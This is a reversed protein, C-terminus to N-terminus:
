KPALGRTGTRLRSTCQRSSAASPASRPLGPIFTLQLTGVAAGDLEAVILLQNPDDDIERLATVYSPHFPEDPKDGTDRVADEAVLRVIFPLDAEVARRFTLTM